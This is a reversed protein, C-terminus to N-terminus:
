QRVEEFSPDFGVESMDINLVRTPEMSLTPSETVISIDSVEIPFSTLAEKIEKLMRKLVDQAAQSSVIFAVRHMDGQQPTIIMRVPAGHDNPLTISLRRGLLRPKAPMAIAAQQLLARVAQQTQHAQGRTSKALSAQLSQTNKGDGLDGGMDSSTSTGKATSKVTPTAATKPQEANLQPDSAPNANTQAPKPAVKVNKATLGKDESVQQTEKAQSMKDTILAREAIADATTVKPGTSNKDTKGQEVRPQNRTTESEADTDVAVKAALLNATSKANRDATNQGATTSQEMVYEVVRAEASQPDLANTQQPISSREGKQSHAAMTGQTSAKRNNEPAETTALGIAVKANETQEPQAMLTLTNKSISEKVKETQNLETQVKKGVQTEQAETKATSDTTAKQDRTQRGSETKSPERSAHETTKTQSSKATSRKNDKAEMPEVHLDSSTSSAVKEPKPATSLRNQEHSLVDPFAGELAVFDEPNTINLKIQQNDSVNDAPDVNRNILHLPSIM